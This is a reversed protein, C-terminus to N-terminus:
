RNKLVFERAAINAAFVDELAFSEVHPQNDVAAEVLRGIDLFGIEGKLFLEVALENAGNAAAPKLGGQKIASLCAALCRFTDTDPKAFTMKAADTLGTDIVQQLDGGLKDLEEAFRSLKSFDITLQNRKAM